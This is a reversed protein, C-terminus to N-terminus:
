YLVPILRRTRRMYERYTDGLALALAAEEVRIRWLFVPVTGLALVALSAWNGLCLGLGVFAMLVGTYSPHRIYRYPGTDIVRHDSAIAVDVTFFRGLYLIAYWRLALGTFFLVAGVDWWAAANTVQLSPANAPLLYGVFVSVGIVIWLWRLSGRDADRTSGAKARKFLALGAESVVFILGFWTVSSM